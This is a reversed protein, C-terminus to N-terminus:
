RQLHQQIGTKAARKRAETTALVNAFNTKQRTASYAHRLTWLALFTWGVQDSVGDANHLDSGAFSCLIRLIGFTVNAESRLSEVLILILSDIEETYLALDKAVDVTTSEAQQL